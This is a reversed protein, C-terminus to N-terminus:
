LGSIVRAIESKEEQEEDLQAVAKMLDDLSPM